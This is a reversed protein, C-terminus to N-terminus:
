RRRIRRAYGPVAFEFAVAAFGLVTGAGSPRSGFYGEQILAGSVRRVGGPRRRQATAHLGIRADV